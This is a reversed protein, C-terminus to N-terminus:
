GTSEEVIGWQPLSPPRSHAKGGNTSLRVDPDDNRHDLTHLVWWGSQCKVPFFGPLGTIPIGMDVNVGRMFQRAEGQFSSGGTYKKHRNTGRQKM